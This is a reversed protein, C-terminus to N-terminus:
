VFVFYNGKHAKAEYMATDTRSYIKEFSDGEGAPFLTAGVSITIPEDMGTIRIKEIEGFLRRVVAECGAKSLNGEICAVFEDGGLRVVLDGERMAARLASAVEILASDGSQHGYNDNIGKFGDIDFMLFVGKKGSDILRRMRLEGGGRNLAGTLADTEALHLASNLQNMQERASRIRSDVNAYAIVAAYPAGDRDIRLVKVECYQYDSGSIMRYVFSYSHDSSLKFRIFDLELKRLYEDRDEPYVDRESYLKKAEEFDCHQFSEEYKESVGKQMSYLFLEGTELVLYFLSTYDGALASIVELNRRDMDMSNYLDSSNKINIM